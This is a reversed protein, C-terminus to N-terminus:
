GAVITDVHDFLFGSRQARQVVRSNIHAPSDVPPCRLTPSFFMIEAGLNKEGASYHIDYSLKSYGRYLRDIQPAADYSIVYPQRVTSILKAIEVHNEHQYFHEYLGEGKVYYPPDLYALANLPLTAMVNRIYHAADHQTLTIRSRHRAVKEVRKILDKKHYRADLKWIGSQAKGGIVGANIIGSRNTRNLFFTSFALDLTNASADQQVSKQRHWQEITVETDQILRCLNDTDNLVTSWFAYISRNLDNIHIHSAYEEYLLSLAVSAGGAYTEVYAYGLLNNHLFLLKLFNALKGKGGPYRLPSVFYRQHSESM